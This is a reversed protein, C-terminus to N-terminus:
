KNRVWGIIKKYINPNCTYTYTMKSIYFFVLVALNIDFEYLLQYM